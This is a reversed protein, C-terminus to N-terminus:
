RLLIMKKVSTMNEAIGEDNLTEVNLRYYYVGSPLSSADFPIEYEGEEMAENNLLIAVEQGLLNFVKLTVLGFNAIRFGFNTTPNFPNPYNQYLAFGEPEESRQEDFSALSIPELGPTVHLYYVDILRKVGTLKTKSGFSLTDVLTDSFAKNIMRIASYLDDYTEGIISALPLCSLMSDALTSIQSIPKGNFPNAVTDEFTLEGLGIPFKERASAAVNLELALAEAFLKNNQKDPPLSKQQKDIPKKKTGDLSDLCRASLTDSHLVPIKKIIKVLSKQVDAYKKHLVSNAGKTGQPIGVVLGNPFAGQAFVEEGVNHYNPMPLGLENRKYSSVLAAKAVGWIYKAKMLKGMYGVGEVQITENTAVNAILNFGPKKINTFTAVTDLKTKGKTIAGSSFMGFDLILNRTNDAMLNFKFFVRDAKKKLSTFKGKTDKSLAWDESTASRYENGYAPPANIFDVVVTDGNTLNVSITNDESATPTSNFLYGLHFWDTSDVEVAYYVGDDLDTATVTTSNGSAVVTGTPSGQRIELHWAKASRDDSTNFNGDTDEFKRVTLENQPQVYSNVAICKNNQLKTEVPYGNDNVLLWNGPVSGSSDAEYGVLASNELGLTGVNDYQYEFTGTCRNLIIRFTTNDFYFLGENDYAAISDWEVIFLCPDGAYGQQTLIRGHTFSGDTLILDNWFAAIFNKPIGNVGGVDPRGDHHISNPFTWDAYLGASNVDQTDTASASLAIGGNVGVWAYRVTTGAFNMDGGIDFPGATGDDAPHYPQPTGLFFQSPPISTGTASISKKSCVTATDIQYIQNNLGVVRYTIPAGEEMFGHIDTAKLSYRITSGAPQGSIIGRYSDGGINTMPVDTQQIGNVSWQLLASAIGIDGPNSFNCDVIEAEVIRDSTSFTTHLETVNSITPAVNSTVSMEYWWDFVYDTPIDGGGRAKWGPVSAGGCTTGAHEYFKWVRSPSPGGISTLWRTTLDDIHGQPGSVIMSIWFSDGATVNPPFFEELNVSNVQNPQMMVPYGGFGWLDNGALPFSTYPAQATSIWPGTAYDSFASVGQDLDSSNPYYGWDFCPSPFNIGPGSNPGINAKHVRIYVTSDYNSVQDGARWYIKNIQGSAPTVFWQAVVDKHKANFQGWLPYDATDYGYQRTPSCAMATQMREDSIQQIINEAREGKKLPIADNDPTVLFKQQASISVVCCLTLLFTLISKM